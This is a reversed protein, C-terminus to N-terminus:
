SARAELWTDVDEPRWRLYRGVKLAPPAIGRHRWVYITEVPVGLHDSLDEISWLRGEPPSTDAAQTSPM